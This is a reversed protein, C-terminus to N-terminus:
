SGRIENIILNLEGDRLNEFGEWENKLEERAEAM